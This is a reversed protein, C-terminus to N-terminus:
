KHKNLIDKIKLFCSRLSNENYAIVRIVTYGSKEYLKQKKDDKQKVNDSDHFNGDVEIILKLSDSRYDPIFGLFPKNPKLDKINLGVFKMQNNFWIESKPLNKNLKNSMLYLFNQNTVKKLKNVKRKLQRKLRKKKSM